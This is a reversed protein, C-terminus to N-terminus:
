FSEMENPKADCHVNVSDNKPPTSFSRLITRSAVITVIGRFCVTKTKSEPIQQEGKNEYM